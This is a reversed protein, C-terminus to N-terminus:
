DWYSHFNKYDPYNQELYVNLIAWLEKKNEDDKKFDETSSIKQTEFIVRDGDSVTGQFDSKKWIEYVCSSDAVHDVKAHYRTEFNIFADRDWAAAKYFFDARKRGKEDYVHKWLRHDTAKISWGEPLSVNWFLDDAEDHITIGMKEYQEKTFDINNRIVIEREEKYEMSPTVGRFRIEHPVCHDNIKKPLLEM